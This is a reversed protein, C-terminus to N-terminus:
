DTAGLINEQICAAVVKMGKRVEIQSLKPSLTINVVEM